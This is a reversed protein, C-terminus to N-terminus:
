CTKDHHYLTIGLVASSHDPHFAQEGASLVESKEPTVGKKYCGERKETRMTEDAGTLNDNLLKPTPSLMGNHMREYLVTNFRHM